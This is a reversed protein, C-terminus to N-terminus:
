RDERGSAAEAAPQLSAGCRGCHRDDPSCDAGCSPCTVHFSRGCATCFSQYGTESLGGSYLVLYGSSRGNWNVQWAYSHAADFEECLEGIADGFEECGLLDYLADKQEGTLDLAYIKLNNAYSTSRNWHNMTHYRFHNKLFKIM